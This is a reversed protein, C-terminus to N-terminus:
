RFDQSEFYLQKKLQIGAKTFSKPWNKESLPKGSDNYVVSPLDQNISVLLIQDFSPTPGIEHVLLALDQLKILRYHGNEERSLPKNMLQGIVEFTVPSLTPKGNREFHGKYLQGKFNNLGGNRLKDLSFREPKLSILDNKQFLDDFEVPIKAKLNLLVQHSHRGGHLPMHSAILLGEVSFLAMGHVGMSKDRHNALEQASSFTSCILFVWSFLLNKM